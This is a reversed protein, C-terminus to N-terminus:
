INANQLTHAEGYEGRMIVNWSITIRRGTNTPVWHQLWSPFVVGRGTEAHVQFMNSNQVMYKERRPVMVKCQGRPDFFQTGSTEKDAVLYYVGSHISNAHTHPPHISADDQLNAWMQTIEVKQYEYGEQVFINSSIAHVFNALYEFEQKTHLDDDSQFLGFPAGAGTRVNRYKNEFKDSIYDIMIKHQDENMESGFEYISTPFLNTKSVNVMDSHEM